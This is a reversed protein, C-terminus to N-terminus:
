RDVVHKQINKLEKKTEHFDLFYCVTDLEEDSAYPKLLWLM